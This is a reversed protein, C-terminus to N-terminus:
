YFEKRHKTPIYKYYIIAVSGDWCVWCMAYVSTNGTARQWESSMVLLNVFRNHHQIVDQFYCMRMIIMLQCSCTFPPQQLGPMMRRVLSHFWTKCLELWRGYMHFVTQIKMQLWSIKPVTVANSDPSSSWWWLHKAMKCPFYSTM